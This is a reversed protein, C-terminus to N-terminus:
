DTEIFIILYGVWGVQYFLTWEGNGVNTRETTKTLQCNVANEEDTKYRFNFGVCKSKKYCLYNCNEQVPPKLNHSSIIEEWPLSQGESNVIQYELNRVCQEAKLIEITAM